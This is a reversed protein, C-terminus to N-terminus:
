KKLNKWVSAAKNPFYLASILSGDFLALGGLEPLVGTKFVIYSVWSLSFTIVMFICVRATSGNGNEESFTSRIFTKNPDILSTNEINENPM